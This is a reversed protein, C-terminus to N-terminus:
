GQHAEFWAKVEGNENTYIRVQARAGSDFTMTLIQLAGDRDATPAETMGRLNNHMLIKDRVQEYSFDQQNTLEDWLKRDDEALLAVLGRERETLVAEYNRRAVVEPSVPTKDVKNEGGARFFRLFKEM